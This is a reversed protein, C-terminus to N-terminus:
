TEAGIEAFSYAPLPGIVRIRVPPRKAAWEEAARDVAETGGRRVLLSATLVDIEGGVADIMADEILPRVAKLLAQSDQVARHRLEAVIAEGLQLAADERGRLRALRPNAALVEAVAADRDYTVRLRAEERGELRDLTHLLSERYPRVLEAVTRDASPAVTPFRFPVVVGAQFAEQLVRHHAALSEPDGPELGPPLPSALVAVPGDVLLKVTAGAVGPTEPPTIDPRCAAYCYVAALDPGKTEAQATGRM